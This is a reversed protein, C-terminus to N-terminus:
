WRAGQQMTETILHLARRWAHAMEPTFQDGLVAGLSAILCPPMAAYHDAVVGYSVHRRGLAGAREVLADVQQLSGALWALEAVLKAQQAALEDPFLARTSPHETFLRAYFDQALTSEMGELMEMTKNVLDIQHTDV